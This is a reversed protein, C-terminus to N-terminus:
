IVTIIDYYLLILYFHSLVTGTKADFTVGFSSDFLIVVNRWSHYKFWTMLIGFFRQQINVMFSCTKSVNMNSCKKINKIIPFHNGQNIGSIMLDSFPLFSSKKTLLSNMMDCSGFSIVFPPKRIKQYADCVVSMKLSKFTEESKCPAPIRCIENNTDKKIQNIIDENEQCSEYIFINQASFNNLFKMQIFVSLSYQM